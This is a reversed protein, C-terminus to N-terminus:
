RSNEQSRLPPIAQSKTHQHHTPTPAPHHHGHYSYCPMIQSPIAYLDYQGMDEHDSLVHNTGFSNRVCYSLWLKLKIRWVQLIARDHYYKQASLFFWKSNDFPWTFVMLWPLLLSMLGNVTTIFPKHSWWSRYSVMLQRHSLLLIILCNVSLVM